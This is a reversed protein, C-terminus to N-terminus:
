VRVKILFHVDKELQRLSRYLGEIDQMDQSDDFRTQLRVLKVHLVYLSVVTPAYLYEVLLNFIEM